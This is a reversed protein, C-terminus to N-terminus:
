AEESVNSFLAPNTSALAVYADGTSVGPNARKYEEIAKLQERVTNAPPPAAYLRVPAPDRENVLKKLHEVGFEEGYKRWRELRDTDTLAVRRELLAGQIVGEIQRAKDQAQERLHREEWERVTQKLQALEAVSDKATLVVMMADAINDCGTSEFLRQELRALSIVRESVQDETADDKLGIVKAIVNSMRKETLAVGRAAILPELNKTAPFNTLALPL